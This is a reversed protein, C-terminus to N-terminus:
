RSGRARAVTVVAKEVAYAPDAGAGKVEADARAVAAIAAAIGEGSWGRSQRRLVDVKWPPMALERALDAGRLGRPASAVKVIGRLAAALAAVIPVPDTGTALAWRLQVLAEETRGEVARDAVAFGTVEARGAYYRRVVDADIGGDTDAVLQSCAGALARLDEGVADVLLDVADPTVKRRASRFEAALFGVRDSRKTIKPCAVEQAGADRAAKLLARGAQNGKHVLVLHLDEPVDVLLGRLEDALATAADQADRVVLVKRDEFLSPSALGSIVGVELGVASVTRVDIGEGGSRAQAVVAAVARDVLLEEAGVVLTVPAPSSPTM